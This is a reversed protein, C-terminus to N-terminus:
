FLPLLEQELATASPWDGRDRFLRARLILPDSDCDLQACARLHVRQQDPTRAWPEPKPSSSIAM